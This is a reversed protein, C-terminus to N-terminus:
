TCLAYVIWLIAARHVALFQQFLINLLLFLIKSLNDRNNCMLIYNFALFIYLFFIYVLVPPM